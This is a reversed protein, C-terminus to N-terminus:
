YDHNIMIILWDATRTLLPTGCIELRWKMNGLLSPLAASLKVFINGFFHAEFGSNKSQDEATSKQQKKSTIMDQPFRRELNSLKLSARDDFFSFNWDPGELKVAGEQLKSSISLRREGDSACSDTSMNPTQEEEGVVCLAQWSKTQSMDVCVSSPLEQRQGLLQLHSYRRFTRESESDVQFGQCVTHCPKRLSSNSPIPLLVLPRIITSGKRVALLSLMFAVPYDTIFVASLTPIISQQSSAQRNPKNRHLNNPITSQQSSGPALM